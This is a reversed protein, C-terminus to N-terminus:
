AGVLALGLVHPGASGFSFIFVADLADRSRVDDESDGVNGM